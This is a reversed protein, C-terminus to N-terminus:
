GGRFGRLKWTKLLEEVEYLTLNEKCVPRPVDTTRILTFRDGNKEIAFELRRALAYLDVERDHRSEPSGAM